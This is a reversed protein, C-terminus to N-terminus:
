LIISNYHQRIMISHYVIHLIVIRISIYDIYFQMGKKIVNSYLVVFSSEM